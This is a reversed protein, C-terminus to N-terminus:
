ETRASVLDAWAVKRFRGGGNMSTAAELLDSFGEPTRHRGAAMERVIWAFQEFDKKKASRLPVREFFPIVSALLARRERVV